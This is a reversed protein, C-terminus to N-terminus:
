LHFGAASLHLHPERFNGPLVQIFANLDLCPLVPLALHPQVTWRSSHLERPLCCNSPPFSAQPKASLPPEARHWTLFGQSVSAPALALPRLRNVGLTLQNCAVGRALDLGDDM